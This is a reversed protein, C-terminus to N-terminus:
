LWPSDQLELRAEATALSIAVRLECHEALCDVPSPDGVCSRAACKWQSWAAYRVSAM